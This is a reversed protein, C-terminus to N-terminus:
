RKVKLRGALEAFRPDSRIPDFIPEVNLYIIWGARDDYARNLQELAKDKDGLGAYIIARDYPSVYSTKAMEDMESLIKQAEAQRNSVAYAHGLFGLVNSTRGAIAIGKEFQKIAEDHKGTADYLTGLGVGGGYHNADIELSKKYENIADDYRRSLYYANAVDDLLLTSLPAVEFGRQAMRIAEDLRGMSVLLYSYLEYNIEYNPNLELARKFEREATAMDLDYFMVIAGYTTHADALSEDLELARRAAAKGKPYGERPSIWGNTASAGYTEALGVHALAFNPDLAVAQNFYEEAKKHDAPTFKQWFYHGKLYLQYAEPNNTNHRNLKNRDAGSLTPRLNTSIEAAIENQLEILDSMKRQYRKGWLQKNDRVDTLEASVILDDGKQLIRGTLVARVGLENGAKLPDVDKNKYSFASSRPIVKLNPLQALSNIISETVGDSLYEANSDNSQNVFPLVVISEIAVESNRAHFYYWAGITIGALLAVAPVILLAVALKNQKFGSALSQASSPRTSISASVAESATRSVSRTPPVTTDFGAGGAIERRVEKLEIALEKITQFREDRDKALCRRVIRQLDAPANPNLESIAQPPERIIKNLTDVTDRGEFAKTGTIAEFLICGFSFIDSRQDIERTKGQAQEPSMYGATGIILGPASQQELIATAVESSGSGSPAEVLKALGFDLVKAHGDRTVMINDPKLDRHVIGAAHAKALGEASHQLYRLLRGLEAPKEHILKRLTDGDVYELAIFSTGESEGIEYIHAINPHNLAAAAKAERNFRDMRDRNAAVKAPLIKLAVKRDLEKDQALYVEGMGGAGLKSRIEYRGLRVGPEISM